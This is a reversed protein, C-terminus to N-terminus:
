RERESRDTSHFGSPQQTPEPGPKGAPRAAEDRRARDMERRKNILYNRVQPDDFPTLDIEGSEIYGWITSQSVDLEAAVSAITGFEGRAMLDRIYNKVVRLTERKTHGPEPVGRCSACRSEGEAPAFIKGCAECQIFSPV